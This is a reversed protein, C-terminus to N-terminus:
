AYIQTYISMLDSILRLKHVSRIISVKDACGCGLSIYKYLHYVGLLPLFLSVCFPSISFRVLPPSLSVCLTQACLAYVHAHALFSNDVNKRVCVHAHITMFIKNTNQSSLDLIDNLVSCKSQLYGVKQLRM